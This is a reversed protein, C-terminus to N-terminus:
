DGSPVIRNFGGAAKRAEALFQKMKGLQTKFTPKGALNTYEQPDDKLNYLEAMASEGWEAYRWDNTRISRGLKTGRSVVTYAYKKGPSDPDRLLPVFSKGQFSGKAQLGCLELLTPHFDVLEVLANTNTGNRTMGPVRIILPVRACEEFLTVKGWMFHEGLHYGHDSTFIVITNEWLNHEHLARFLMGLQADVYSICAHYAQTYERRLSDNERGMEFGFSQFRKVMALAPIDGWDNAPSLPFKLDKLPYQDFYEQPALFPVHPKQIGCAIFFPKEGYKKQDLWSIIQRVNKGDKHQEDRLETPGYGPPTQGRTQTSLKQLHAKWKKRNARLDVSGNKAEYTQRAETVLPLEDNQFMIQEHWAVEGQQHRTSHFIKGVSATWYGNAKFQEPMSVSDPRSKRIDATNNLVGTTEPYLGSLFSARSPGCVPYQCYARRFTMSNAALDDLAPTQILRYGSPAVHTNLDDCVIFLVHPTKAPPKTKKQKRMKRREERKQKRKIERPNEKDKAEDTPLLSAKGTGASQVMTKLWKKHLDFLERAKVPNEAALDQTESPDVVLNFLSYKERFGHVKWNGQRVAWEGKPPGSNWFMNTHHSGSQGTILPLISKGDFQTGEPVKIGTADIVTPLIDISSVPTNITRGGKFKEPWSIIWPTRIGGEHLSGKFGRLSGNNAEMAKSGGNDTLFFLLTNQWLNEDKLKKVVTGVGLDLHYLMAMLTARKESIQPFKKQYREIDEKPAQAPAHVANYSLYLFFPDAKERDIFDVAEETLRTTMYGNYENDTLRKKNRYVPAYDSGKVGQLKFYDHGGRGMFKYCESFGRNLAHWKLEPFDEDLGLHWKGIATSTYENPLFTPFIPLKPDFGRGGDGATYVGVRQQYRGLMLGARTPSCVHGSTYAQSFFLGGRALEDMHPTSVEEPHDPNFSIDAYGQDDTLIVVINPLEGGQSVSKIMMFGLILLMNKFKM